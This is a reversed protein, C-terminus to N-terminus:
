SQYLLFATLLFTGLVAIGLMTATAGLGVIKRLLMSSLGLTSLALQLGAFAAVHWVSQYRIGFGEKGLPLEGSIALPLDSLQALLPVGLVLLAGAFVVTM